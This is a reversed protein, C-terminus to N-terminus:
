RNRSEQKDPKAAANTGDNEGGNGKRAGRLIEEPVISALLADKDQGDFNAGQAVWDRLVKIYRADIPGGRKPMEGDEVLTIFSSNDPEGAVIVPGDPTGKLLSAYTKFDLDGKTDEIHCRGCQSFVIPAVHSTFGITEGPAPPPIGPSGSTRSVDRGPGEPGEERGSGARSYFSGGPENERAYEEMEERSQREGDSEVRPTESKKCGALTLTTVAAAALLALLRQRNKM